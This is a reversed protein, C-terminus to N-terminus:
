FFSVQNDWGCMRHPLSFGGAASNYEALSSVDGSNSYVSWHQLRNGATSILRSKDSLATSFFDTACSDIHASERSYDSSFPVSTLKTVDTSWSRNWWLPWVNILILVTEATNTSNQDMYPWSLENGKRKKGESFFLSSLACWGLAYGLLRKNNFTLLYSSVFRSTFLPWWFSYVQEPWEM